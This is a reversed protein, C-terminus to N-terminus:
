TRQGKRQEFEERTISIFKIRDGAQLLAPKKREPDFLKEPTRGILQWGGPTEMPYIGTQMGAIGVSGAPIAARPIEKRPTAIKNNLGGLYPFGPVFGIMYVVYEQASHLAIVEEVSLQNHEAVYDLDPGFSGGYCVPIEVVRLNATAAKLPTDALRKQLIEVVKQYPDIKGKKSVVWPDYYVTVSAYAPVLEVFGMFTHETLYAAFVHIRDHIEPDILQGLQVVIAADGLPFLQFTPIASPANHM